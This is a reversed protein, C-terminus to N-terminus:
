QCLGLDLLDHLLQLAYREVVGIRDGVGLNPIQQLLRLLFNHPTPFYHVLDNLPCRSGEEELVVLHVVGIGVGGFRFLYAM